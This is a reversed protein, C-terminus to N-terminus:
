KEVVEMKLEYIFVLLKNYDVIFREWKWNITTCKPMLVNLQVGRYINGRQKKFIIDLCVM